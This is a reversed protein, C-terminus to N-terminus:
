VGATTARAAATALADRVARDADDAVQRAMAAVAASADRKRAARAQEISRM